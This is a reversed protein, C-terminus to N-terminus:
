NLKLTIKYSNNFRKMKREKAATECNKTQM